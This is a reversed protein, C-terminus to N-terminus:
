GVYLAIVNNKTHTFFDLLFFRKELLVTLKSVFYKSSNFSGNQSHWSTLENYHVLLLENATSHLSEQASSHAFM